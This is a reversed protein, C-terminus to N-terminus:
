LNTQSMWEISTDANLATVVDDTSVNLALRGLGVCHNLTDKNICALVPLLGNPM